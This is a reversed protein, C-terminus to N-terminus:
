NVEGAQFFNGAYLEPLQAGFHQKIWTEPLFSKRESAGDKGGGFGKM